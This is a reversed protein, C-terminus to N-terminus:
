FKPFTCVLIYWELLVKAWIITYQINPITAKILRFGIVNKYVENNNNDGFKIVYHSHEEDLTTSNNSDVIINKKIIDKNFLKKKFENNVNKKNKNLSYIILKTNKELETKLSNIMLNMMKLNENNDKKHNDDNNIINDIINSEINGKNDQKNNNRDKLFFLILPIITLLLSGIIHYKYKKILEKM